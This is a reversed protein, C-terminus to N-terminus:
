EAQRIENKTEESLACFKCTGKNHWKIFQSPSYNITMMQVVPLLVPKNNDNDHRAPDRIFESPFRFSPLM